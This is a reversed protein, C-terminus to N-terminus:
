RRYRGYSVLIYQILEMEKKNGRISELRKGVEEKYQEESSVGKPLELIALGGAKLYSKFKELDIKSFVRIWLETRSYLFHLLKDRAVESIEASRGEFAIEYLKLLGAPNNSGVQKVATEYEERLKQSDNISPNQSSTIEPWVIM